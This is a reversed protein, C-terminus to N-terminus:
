FIGKTLEMAQQETFGAKVYADFAKKKAEAVMPLLACLKDVDAKLKEITSAPNTGPLQKVNNM